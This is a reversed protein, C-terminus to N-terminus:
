GLSVDLKAHNLLLLPVGSDHDVMFFILEGLIFLHLDFLLSWAPSICHLRRNVTSRAPVICHVGRNVAFAAVRLVQLPVRLALLRDRRLALM